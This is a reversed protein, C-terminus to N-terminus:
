IEIMHISAGQHMQDQELVFNFERMALDNEDLGLYGLGILYHCHIKNWLSLDDRFVKFDPLSVAFYDMDIEDDMHLQGYDILQKFVSDAELFKELRREALGIYFNVEPSRDNYYKPPSLSISGMTANSWHLRSKTKDGAGAFAEGLYYEIRNDESGLLKGEGLNEPFVKARELFEIAREYDNHKLANKALEVLSLVYQATVKGEGGEWPHFRRKELLALADEYRGLLNLITIRELTLDDRSDVLSSYAELRILRGRPPHNLTKYLQDLEYFVRGDASDLEFAREYSELALEGKYMINFYAQGLNRYVTAFNPKLNRVTEWCRIAESYNRHSYYFLGLYYYANADQPNSMVAMQLAPVCEIQNPFCYDMTAMSAQRFTLMAGEDDGDQLLCWGLYYSAMPNTEPLRRLLAMAELFLGAHIYDLAIELLTDAKQRSLQSFIADQVLLYREWMAGFEMRDLELALSAERLAADTRGSRRLLAIRLHRVKHNVYNRRLARRTFDLAQEFEGNRSALRALEFYGNDQWAANWTSKYFDDYAEDYRSQMKLALGLNYHPEGDYPNANHRALGSIAQRFYSEASLFNGQRYRLLGMANNSRIDLPDRKIAELYYHEPDLMVHRYQEIHLGALYLGETSKIEQPKEIASAADPLSIEVDPLPTYSLLLRRDDFVSLTLDQPTLGAPVEATELLVEEPSLNIAKDFLIGAPSSLQVIVKRSRTVYVGMRAQSNEIVLSLAVERSANQPPGVKKIPFFNQVFTKEEGPMLWSFDPQNDTYAGCMLEVYPGDDETLQREWAKGFDGNGWTWQKKGPVVHHDAVHLMGVQRSHDYNGLFDFKSKNAMYSTPVPINVYRSIDTGPAYNVKYYEGTAIPFDSVARKGHDFVAHVDPPFVSQTHENAPVAPNAWWLFTQPESTRNYLQVRVEIYATDPYLTIGHMGKTRSMIEIESCWVTKSGDLNEDIRWDLPDFTSPRHHQPWNFEIGGSIWPGTLGVLAPRIVHNYYIFHYNNTKDFAMHIRGGIEPLVMVKLYSNELYVANYQVDEKIDTVLEVVAHPYVGGSSGQYVRRELFLPNKEPPGIRYTPIITLESWARVDGAM